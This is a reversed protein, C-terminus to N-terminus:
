NPNSNYWDVRTLPLKSNGGDPKVLLVQYVNLRGTRFGHASGSMYLRWIRYVVDDATRCVKDKQAELRRVWHHLTLAYHERLSEVDRVEFGSAEAARLTTSIPLIESDPFVYTNAFSPGTQEMDKISCSIGHNLFVGAPRLLRWAGSYYDSLQAEGVHEFMGVSVLKDYGEPEDVERYDRVDVRCHEALGAERIRKNALDAQPQSLTIGLAKVGYNRAAHMVLAGWGCGIDLMREGPRLRLKRCIYDLKSEQAKDLDDDPNEFYACSYVMGRDLWLAYFDNSVDYHYCVAQRDRERSHRNGRMKVPQCGARPRNGNRPLQLLTRACCLWQNAALRPNVLHDRITFIGEIDGEVDLEDHIYAEGLKVENPMWLMSRLACPHRIVLTYRTPQGPEAEWVTGDWFRVAFDRPQCSGLLSQILSLSNRVTRDPVSAAQSAM